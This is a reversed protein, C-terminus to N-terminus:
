TKALVNYLYTNDTKLEELSIPLYGNRKASDINYKIVHYAFDLRRLQNCRDLWEKIIKSAEDASCKKVNILYPALICWMAFKRYDDLPTNLLKEIWRITTSSNTIQPRALKPHRSQLNKM